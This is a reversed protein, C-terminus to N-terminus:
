EEAQVGSGLLAPQDQTHGAKVRLSVTVGAAGAAICVNGSVRTSGSIPFVM